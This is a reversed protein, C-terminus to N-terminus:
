VSFLDQDGDGDVDIWTSQMATSGPSDAIGAETTRDEFHTGGSNRLLLDPAHHLALFLDTFGDGDYDAAAM